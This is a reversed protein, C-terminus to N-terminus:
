MLSMPGTVETRRDFTLDWEITQKTTAEYTCSQQQEPPQARLVGQELDLSRRHVGRASAAVRGPEPSRSRATLAHVEPRGRPRQEFGNAEGKLFHDLFPKQWEKPEDGYYVGWENGGHTFLWEQDLSIRAFGEISGLSHLGHDPWSSCVLAPIDINLM